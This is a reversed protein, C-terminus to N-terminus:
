LKHRIRLKERIGLPFDDATYQAHPSVFDGKCSVAFFEELDHRTERGEIHHQHVAAHRAQVPGAGGLSHNVGVAFNKKQRHRSNNVNEKQM